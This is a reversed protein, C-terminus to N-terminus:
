NQQHTHVKWRWKTNDIVSSFFCWCVIKIVLGHRNHAWTISNDLVLILFSIFFTSAYKSLKHVRSLEITHIGFILYIIYGYTYMSIYISLCHYKSLVATVWLKSQWLINLHPITVLNRNDETIWSDYYM